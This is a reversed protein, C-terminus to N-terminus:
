YVDNFISSIGRITDDWGITSLSLLFFMVVASLLGCALGKWGKKTLLNEDESVISTVALPVIICLIFLVFNWFGIEAIKLIALFLFLLIFPM